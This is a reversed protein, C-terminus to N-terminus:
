PVKPNVVPCTLPVQCPRTQLTIEPDDLKVIGSHVGDSGASKASNLQLLSSKVADPSLELKVLFVSGFRQM